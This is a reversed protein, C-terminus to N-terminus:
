LANYKRHGVKDIGCVTGHLATALDTPIDSSAATFLRRQTAEQAPGGLAPEELDANPGTLRYHLVRVTGPHLYM